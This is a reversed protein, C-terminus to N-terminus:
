LLTNLKGHCIFCFCLEMMLNPAILNVCNIKEWKTTSEMGNTPRNNEIPRISCPIRKHSEVFIFSTLLAGVVVDMHIKHTHTNQITRNTCVFTAVDFNFSTFATRPSHFSLLLLLLFYIQVLIVSVCTRLFSLSFTKRLHAKENLTYFPMNGYLAFRLCVWVCVCGM